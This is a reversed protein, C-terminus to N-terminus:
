NAFTTMVFKALEVNAPSANEDFILEGLIKKAEETEGKVDMILAKNILLAGRTETDPDAALGNEVAKLREEQDDSRSAIEKWAPAYSPFKNVIAHAIKLKEEESNSWEIQMYGLYLGQPFVGEQEKKLSWYATKATFFGRPEISNTVEYYKLANQFDNQLLYTFALDYVPYAWDPALEHAKLLKEIAQAYEGKGGHHRAEQHLTQAKAPIKKNDMIAWNFEGTVGDLDSLYIENGKEDKFILKDSKNKQGMMCNSFMLVIAFLLSLNEKKM